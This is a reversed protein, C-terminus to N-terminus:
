WRRRGYCEATDFVEPFPHERAVYISGICIICAIASLQYISWVESGTSYESSLLWLLRLSVFVNLDLPPKLRRTSIYVYVLQNYRHGKLGGYSVKREVDM